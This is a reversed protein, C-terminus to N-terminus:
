WFARSLRSMEPASNRPLPAKRRRTRMEVHVVELQAADRDRKNRGSLGVQVADPAGGPLHELEEPDVYTLIDPHHCHVIWGSHRDSTSIAFDGAPCGARVPGWKRLMAIAVYRIDPASEAFVVVTGHRFLVWARGPRLLSRWADIYQRTM